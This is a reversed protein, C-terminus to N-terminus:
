DDSESSNSGVDDEEDTGDDPNVEEEEVKDSDAQQEDYAAPGAEENEAFEAGEEMELSSILKKLALKRSELEKCTERLRTIVAAKGIPTSDKSTGASTTVIDPVHTGQFLKYHFSLASERKCIYDKEVLISPYQNLIIGCILSPFAIPGKVSFSGAHKMTQEFIYTGYDSKAKTGVFYIFRGLITAITSKHNTPMWNAAGIKHLMVCKMSLKSASLKGKLPWRKVQNATIVQCVKNDSVELKTQAEDSKGLYNNIVTSSFTVCRGRVNVKRFEKSKRDACEESLKVIFKKVLVEYCTAFHAVIKILGAAHILEM